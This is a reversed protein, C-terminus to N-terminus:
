ADETGGSAPGIARAVRVLLTYFIILLALASFVAPTILMPPVRTKLFSGILTNIERANLFIELALIGRFVLAGIFLNALPWHSLELLIRLSALLLILSFVYAAFSFYSTGLRSKLEEGSLSFDITLSRVFWPTDGGFPLAPLNLITNNPGIPVEQYILPRGPISVLRPGRVDRSGRLLIIDNNSRSLILGPEGGLPSVPQLAPELAGIRSIGESVGLSFACGLILIGIIALPIPMKRRATYSLDLLTSLYLAAPFARWAAEAIDEGPRAGVPIFRAWEIWSALFRLLVAVVFLIAFCLSFFLTLKALNKM